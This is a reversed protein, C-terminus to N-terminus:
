LKQAVMDMLRELQRLLNLTANMDIINKDGTIRYDNELRAIGMWTGVRGYNRLNINESAALPYLVDRFKTRLKNSVNRNDNEIKLILKNYELQLYFNFHNGEIEAAQWHWWFGLFGGARNPVYGWTGELHKQLESFFGKWSYWRWQDISLTKYSIIEDELWRLYEYYDKLIDNGDAYGSLIRLMKKRTFLTYGAKEVQNLDGQEEMKFYVPVIKINNKIDVFNNKVTEKYRELQNSHEKTGKKDEIIIFYKNNIKAWVDIHKLQRGAEVTEVKFSSDKQLLERIFKVSCNHLPKDNKFKKDGWQLLWTIFADQSLESTAIKFINPKTMKGEM